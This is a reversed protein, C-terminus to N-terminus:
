ESPPAPEAALFDDLREWLVGVANVAEAHYRKGSGKGKTPILGAALVQDFRAESIGLLSLSEDRTLWRGPLEVTYKWM